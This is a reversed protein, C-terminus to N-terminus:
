SLCLLMLSDDKTKGFRLLGELSCVAIPGLWLNDFEKVPAEAFDILIELLSSSIWTDMVSGMDIPDDSFADFESSSSGVNTFPFCGFRPPLAFRLLLMSLLVDADLLYLVLLYVFGM